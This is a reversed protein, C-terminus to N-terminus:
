EKDWKCCFKKLGAINDNAKILLSTLNKELNKRSPRIYPWQKDKTEKEEWRPNTDTDKLKYNINSDYTSLILLVIAVVAVGALATGGLVKFITAKKKDWFHLALRINGNIKFSEKLANLISAKTRQCKKLLAERAQKQGESQTRAALFAEQKNKYQKLVTENEKATAEKQINKIIKEFFNINEQIYDTEKQVRNIEGRTYDIEDELKFLAALLTDATHKTIDIRPAEEEKPANTQINTTDQQKQETTQQQETTIPKQTEEAALACTSVVFLMTM